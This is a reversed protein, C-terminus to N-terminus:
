FIFEQMTQFFLQKVKKALHAMEIGGSFWLNKSTEQPYLIPYQPLHTLSSTNKLIRNFM